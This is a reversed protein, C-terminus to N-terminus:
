RGSIGVVPTIENILATSITASDYTRIISNEHHGTQGEVGIRSYIEIAARLIWDNWRREIIPEDNSDVPYNSTPYRLMLFLEKSSEIIDELLADQDDVDLRSKLRDLM